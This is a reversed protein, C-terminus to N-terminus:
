NLATGKGSKDKRRVPAAGPYQYLAVERKISLGKFYAPIMYYISYMQRFCSSIRNDKNYRNYANEYSQLEVKKFLEAGEDTGAIIRNLRNMQFISEFSMTQSRYFELADRKAKFYGTCDVYHTVGYVSIPSNVEYCYTEFEKHKQLLKVSAILIGSVATHDKHGDLFYPVFVMDPKYDEIVHAVKKVVEDDNPELSGDPCDLFVPEEMGMNKALEIAEVKRLEALAQPTLEHSLSQSGDTMFICKVVGKDELAKKILCGCGLIEDDQHPSLILIRKQKVDITKIDKAKGKVLRLYIGLVINNIVKIPRATVKKIVNKM